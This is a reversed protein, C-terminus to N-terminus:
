GEEIEVIVNGLATLTANIFETCHFRCESEIFWRAGKCSDCCTEKLAQLEDASFDKLLVEATKATMRHAAQQIKEDMAHLAYPEEVGSEEFFTVTNLFIQKLDDSFKFRKQDIEISKRIDGDKQRQISAHWDCFMEVVDILNMGQIGNLFHNPHHRNRAYHHVLAPRLKEFVKKYEDSGYVLDKLKVTLGVFTPYEESSFKSMDHDVGRLILAEAIRTIRKCVQQAHELLDNPTSLVPPANDKDKDM